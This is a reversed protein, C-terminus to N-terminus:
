HDGQEGRGRIRRGTVDTPALRIFLSRPGPAWVPMEGVTDPVEHAPVREAVGTVVVSWAAHTERDLHDVEAAVRGGACQRALATYPQTRFWLAGDAVTYNVPVVAVGDPGSWAIRAIEESELLQWCDYGPLVAPLQPNSTNM